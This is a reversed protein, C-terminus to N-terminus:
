EEQVRPTMSGGANKNESILWGSLCAIIMDPDKRKGGCNEGNNWEKGSSKRM